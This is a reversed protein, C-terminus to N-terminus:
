HNKNDNRNQCNCSKVVVVDAGDSVKRQPFIDVIKDKFKPFPEAISNKFILKILTKLADIVVYLKYFVVVVVVFVTFTTFIQGLDHM